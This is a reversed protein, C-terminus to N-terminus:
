DNTTKAHVFYRTGAVDVEITRNPSTASVSAVTGMKWAAATGGAPAATTVSGVLTLNQATSFTAALTNNSSITVAGQIGNLAVTSGNVETPKWLGGGRDYSILKGSTGDWLLEPGIGTAPADSGTVKIIKTFLNTTDLRAVIATDISLTNGSKSLGTGALILGAGAGKVSVRM